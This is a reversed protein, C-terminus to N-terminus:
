KKMAKNIALVADVYERMNNLKLEVLCEKITVPDWIKNQPITFYPNLNWQNAMIKRTILQQSQLIIVPIGYQKGYEM